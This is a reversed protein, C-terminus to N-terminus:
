CPDRNVLMRTGPHTLLPCYGENDGLELLSFRICLRHIYAM